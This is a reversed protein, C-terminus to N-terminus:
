NMLGAQDAFEPGCQIDRPELEKCRWPAVLQLQATTPACLRDNALENASPPERGPEHSLFRHCAAAAFEPPPPDNPPGSEISASILVRIVLSLLLPDDRDTEDAATRFSVDVIHVPTGKHM